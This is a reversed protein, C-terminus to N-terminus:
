ISSRHLRGQRRLVVTRIGRGGRGARPRHRDPACRRRPAGSASRGVVAVARLVAPESRGAAVARAAGRPDGVLRARDPAAGRRAGRDGALPLPRRRLRGGPDRHRRRGRGRGRAGDRGGGPRPPVGGSRAPGGARRPRALGLPQARAMGGRDGGLGRAARGPVRRRRQGAPAVADRRRRSASRPRHRSRRAAVPLATPRQGAGPAPPRMGRGARRHSVPAARGRGLDGAAGCRRGREGREM